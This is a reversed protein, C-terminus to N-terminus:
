KKQSAKGKGKRKSQYRDKHCEPCYWKDKSLQSLKLQLCSLHYWEIKCNPNDCGVLEEQINRQCYCWLADDESDQDADEAAPTQLSDQTNTLIDITVTASITDDDETAHVTMDSPGVLPEM